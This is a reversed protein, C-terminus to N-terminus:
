LAFEIVLTQMGLCIGFHPRRERAYHDRQAYEEHRAERVASCFAM